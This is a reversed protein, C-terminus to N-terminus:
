GALRSVNLAKQNSDRMLTVHVATMQTWNLEVSATLAITVKIDQALEAHQIANM